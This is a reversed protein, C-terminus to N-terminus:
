PLGLDLLIVDPRFAAAAALGSHGGEAEHLSFEESSLVTHLFRRIALEDAMGRGRGNAPQQFVAMLGEDEFARKHPSAGPRRLWLQKPPTPRSRRRPDRQPHPSRVIKSCGPNKMFGSFRKMIRVRLQM